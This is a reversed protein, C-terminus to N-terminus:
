PIQPLFFGSYNYWKPNRIDKSTLCEIKELFSKLFLSMSKIEIESEKKARIKIAEILTHLTESLHDIVTRFKDFTLIKKKKM